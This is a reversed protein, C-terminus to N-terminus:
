VRISRPIIWRHKQVQFLQVLQFIKITIYIDRVLVSKGTDRRGILVIVPGKSENPKFSISKMNFKQLDLNM